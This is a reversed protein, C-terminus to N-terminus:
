PHAFCCFVVTIYSAYTFPHVFLQICGLGQREVAPPLRCCQRGLAPPPAAAARGASPTQPGRGRCLRKQARCPHTALACAPPHAPPHPLLPRPAHRSSRPHIGVSACSKCCFSTLPAPHGSHSGIWNGGHMQPRRTGCSLTRVGWRHGWGGVRGCKYGKAPPLQSRSTCDM